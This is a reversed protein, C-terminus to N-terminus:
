LRGSEHLTDQERTVNTLRLRIPCEIPNFIFSTHGGRCGIHNSVSERQGLMGAKRM